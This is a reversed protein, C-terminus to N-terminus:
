STGDAKCFLRKGSETETAEGGILMEAGESRGINLYNLVRSKRSRRFLRDLSRTKILVM